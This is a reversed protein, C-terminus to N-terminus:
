KGFPNAGEIVPVNSEGLQLNHVAYYVADIVDPSDSSNEYQSWERVFPQFREDYGLHEDESQNVLVCDAREFVISLDQIRSDKSETPNAGTVRGTIESKAEQIFYRQAGTEEVTVVPKPIDSALDGLWQIQERMTAGRKTSVDLLYATSEQQDYAVLAVATHDSDTRNAKRKDALYALDVGIHYQYPGGALEDANIFQLQERSLLTGGSSGWGGYLAREERQTGAYQRKLRNKVGDSLYPNDLTSARYLEINLGLPEGTSDQERELIQYAANQGEGTLTWLQTKPGDVGRLRSGIM